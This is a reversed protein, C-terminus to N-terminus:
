LLTCMGTTIAAAGQPIRSQQEYAQYTDQLRKLVSDYLIQDGLLLAVFTHYCQPNLKVKLEIDELMVDVRDSESVNPNSVIKFMVDSMLRTAVLKAGLRAVDSKIAAKLEGITDKLTKYEVSDAFAMSILGFADYLQRIIVSPAGLRLRTKACTM